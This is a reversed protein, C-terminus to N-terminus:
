ESSLSWLFIISHFKQFIERFFWFLKRFRVTSYCIPLSRMLSWRPGLSNTSEVLCSNVVFVIKTGKFHKKM